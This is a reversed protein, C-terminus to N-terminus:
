ASIPTEEAIAATQRVVEEVSIVSDVEGAGYGRTTSERDDSM